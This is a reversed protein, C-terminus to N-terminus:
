MEMTTRIRKPLLELSPRFRCFFLRSASTSATRIGGMPAPRPHAPTRAFQRRDSSSSCSESDGRADERVPLHPQDGRHRQLHARACQVAVALAAVGRCRLRVGPMRPCYAKSRESIRFELSGGHCLGPVPIPSGEEATVEAVAHLPQQNRIRRYEKQHNEPLVRPEGVVKQSQKGEGRLQSDPIEITQCSTVYRNRCPPTQCRIKLISVSHINPDGSSPSQPM